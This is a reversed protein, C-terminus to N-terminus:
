INHFILLVTSVLGVTRVHRLNSISQVQTLKSTELLSVKSRSIRVYLAFSLHRPVIYGCEPSALPTRFFNTPLCAYIALLHDSATHESIAAFVQAPM